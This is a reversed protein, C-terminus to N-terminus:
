HTMARAATRARQARSGEVALPQKGGLAGFFSSLAPCKADLRVSHSFHRSFRGLGWGGGGGYSWEDCTSQVEPHSNAKVSFIRSIRASAEAQRTRSSYSGSM